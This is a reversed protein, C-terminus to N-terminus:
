LPAKWITGKTGPPLCMGWEMQEYEWLSVQYFQSPNMGPLLPLALDRFAEEGERVGEAGTGAM